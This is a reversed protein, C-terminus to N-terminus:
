NSTLRACVASASRWSTAAHALDKAALIKRIEELTLGIAQAKRIFLVRRIADSPYLRYNAPSRKPKPLLGTREYFHLTQVHVGARSAVEGIKMLNETPETSM